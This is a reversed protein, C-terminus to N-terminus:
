YLFAAGASRSWNLPVTDIRKFDSSRDGALRLFNIEVEILNLFLALRSIPDFRVRLGPSLFVDQMKTESPGDLWTLTVDVSTADLLSIHLGIPDVGIRYTFRDTYIGEYVPLTQSRAPFGIASQAALAMSYRLFERRRLIM